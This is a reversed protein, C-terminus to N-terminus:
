RELTKVLPLQPTKNQRKISQGYNAGVACATIKLAKSNILIKKSSSMHGLALLAASDWTGAHGSDVKRCKGKMRGALQWTTPRLHTGIIRSCEARATLAWLELSTLLGQHLLPLSPSEYSGSKSTVACSGAHTSLSHSVTREYAGRGGM